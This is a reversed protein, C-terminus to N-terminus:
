SGVVLISCAVSNTGTASLTLLKHTGDVAIDGDWLFSGEPALTTTTSFVANTGAGITLAATTSGNTIQLGSVTGFVQSAGWIDPTSTGSTLDISTPTSTVTLDKFYLKTIDTEALRTSITLSPNGTFSSSLDGTNTFQAAISSNVNARLSKAM